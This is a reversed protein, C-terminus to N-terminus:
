RRLADFRERAEKIGGAQAKAYLDRARAPDGLTGYAGRRRLVLPDYTEALAFSAQPNGTEAARELVVRASGIDGQGLLVSARAVLRAVETANQPDPKASSRAVTAAAQNVAVPKIPDAAPPKDQTVRGTTAVVPAAPVDKTKRGSALERELRATKDREQQLSRQSEASSDVAAQKLRAAEADAKTARAGQTETDRRAAALEQELRATREWAQVLSKRLEAASQAAQQGAAQDGAMHAEVEYTYIATHVLSLNQALAEARDREKQLSRQLDASGNEAAQKSRAADENAKAVLATQTEVNRRAAALDQEVRRTREQEQQLSKRLEAASSAAAEARVAAQDGAMRAQVKYTDVATHVLSLNQALAEARDREKQLSRQLEASGNEAAQKSRAADENAKAVLATQTEVNRRAAALDQELRGAREQEQKLSVRLAAADSDSAQRSNSAQDSAKRTQAEYAYISAHAMSLDKALAEAREHEKQLSQKLEASGQEAAQKLQGADSSAKSALATQTEVDRRAAALDQELRGAREQEQQLSKRLEAASSDAAQKAQGAADTAKAALATQTEVDRRAAALDRELHGARAQEQQLSKRLEAASGDAAQKERSADDTAKAALATQTEVDHRAAALDQELRGAHEREQQLSKRLEAEAAGGDAAQKAQGADSTAKAALATQTEVDHRAVALDQQLRDAREKEQQLSKRLEATDGKAAQKLKAAEDSAKAALATQTEVDRRAAALDQVLREAPDGPSSKCLEAVGSEAAQKLQDREQQLSKVLEAYDNEPVQRIKASEVRAKQLTLLMELHQVTTLERVLLEARRHEQDLAKQLEDPDGTMAQAQVSKEGARGAQDSAVDLAGATAESPRIATIFATALFTTALFTAAITLRTARGREPGQKVPLRAFPAGGADKDIRCAANVDDNPIVSKRNDCASAIVQGM